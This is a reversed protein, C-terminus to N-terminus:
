NKLTFWSPGNSSASTATFYKFVDQKKIRLYCNQCGPVASTGLGQVRNVINIESHKRVNEYNWQINYIDNKICQLTLYVNSSNELLCFTASTKAMLM